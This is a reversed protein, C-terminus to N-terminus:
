PRCCASIDAAISDYLEYASLIRNGFDPVASISPYRSFWTIQRKAYRRTNRKILEVAEDFTIKKSIYLLMEKYGIANSATTGLKLVGSTYLNRVENELGASIM